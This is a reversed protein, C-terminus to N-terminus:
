RIEQVNQSIDFAQVSHTLAGMSIFDVGTGAVEIINKESINGSAETQARKAIQKVAEKMTKINMNDLMIIDAGAELAEDVQSLNTTEVEIKIGPNNQRVLEVARSISGAAIIHNDKIMAMDYLGMRHNSGGGTAIAYKDLVRLGPVTKRTDLIQTPLGELKKVIQNIKTAIGSMRQAFNLAIREGTLLARCSGQFTVLVDEKSIIDGDSFAPKWELNEDFRRFVKEAVELGAIIGDDKSTWEAKAKASGSVVALTTIDGPGIDEKFALDIVQDILKNTQLFDNEMLTLVTQYKM